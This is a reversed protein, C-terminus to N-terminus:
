KGERGLISRAGARGVVRLRDKPGLAVALHVGVDADRRAVRGSDGHPTGDPV